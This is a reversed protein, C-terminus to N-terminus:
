NDDDDDDFLHDGAKVRLEASAQVILSDSGQIVSGSAETPLLQVRPLIYVQENDFISIEDSTLSDNFTSLVSEISYGDEDTDASELTFPGIVVANPDNVADELTSIFLTVRAGIPLSSTLNSQINGYVFTEEFDPMDDPDIEVDSAELDIEATDALAFAMPSYIEVEGYFFDSKTILVSDENAPNFIAMGNIIIEEPAPNLFDRLTSSGVTIDTALPGSSALAKGRITDQVVVSDGAQSSLLIDAFVDTTSNNYLTMTLRAQTLQADEFGDPLEVAQQMSAIEIETPKIQGMVSIFTIDSVGSTIDINDTHNIAYQTPSSAEIDAAAEIGITQPFSIGSPRFTYNALDIDLDLAASGAISTDISLTDHNLVFNPILLSINMPLNTNNEILLNMTGAEIVAEYIISSDSLEIEQSLDKSIAPIEAMASSVTLGNPFASNIVLDNSPTGIAQDSVEYYIRLTLQNKMLKGALDITDAKTETDNIGGDFVATGLPSAAPLDATNYIAITLSDIDIGLNNVVEITLIGQNIQALSFNSFADLNKDLSGTAPAPIVGADNPIGLEDLNFDSSPIAPADIDVNGLEISLPECTVGPANLNDDVSITDIEQEISFYPNGSSDFMIDDSDMEDIIDEISYTKSTLPLDWTTEWSPAEPKNVSCSQLIFLLVAILATLMGTKLHFSKM